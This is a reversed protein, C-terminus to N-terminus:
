FEGSEEPFVMIHDEDDYDEAIESYDEALENDKDIWEVDDNYEFAM